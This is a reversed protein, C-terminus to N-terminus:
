GYAGVCHGLLRRWSLRGVRAARDMHGGTDTSDVWWIIYVSLIALRLPIRRSTRSAKMMANMDRVLSM